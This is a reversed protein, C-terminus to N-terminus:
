LLDGRRSDLSALFSNEQHLGSGFNSFESDDNAQSESGRDWPLGTTAGLAALDSHRGQRQGDLSARLKQRAATIITEDLETSRTPAAAEGLFAGRIEARTPLNSSEIVWYAMGCQPLLTQKLQRNRRSVRKSGPVDVCGIVRGDPACVTLTCYVGSLLKHWHPGQEQSRPLTFRTVPTKLMIHHESFADSLWRWVKREESNVLARASLPWRKPVRRRTEAAQRAWWVCLMAGAVMGGIAAAVTVMWGPIENM